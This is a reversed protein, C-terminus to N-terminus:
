DEAHSLIELRKMRAAQEADEIRDFTGCRHTKGDAVVKALWKGSRTQFVGRIGSSSNKRAGVNHMNQARNVSRLNEPRNNLKDRDIHDVIDIAQRSGLIVRHMYVGNSTAAYGTKHLYWTRSKVLGYDERLVRVQARIQKDRGRLDMIVEDGVVKYTNM